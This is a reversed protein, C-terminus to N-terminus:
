FHLWTCRILLQPRRRLQFLKRCCSGGFEFVRSGNATLRCFFHPVRHLTNQILQM